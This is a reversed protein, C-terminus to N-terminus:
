WGQKQGELLFGGVFSGVELVRPRSPKRMKALYKALLPVKTKAWARQTELEGRLYREDYRENEYANTVARAAPRPNRYLLGCEECAVVATAYDQTFNVRDTATAIDQRSWRSRYFSELVAHQAAIEEASCVLHFRASGCLRCGVLMRPQRELDLAGASPKGVTLGM